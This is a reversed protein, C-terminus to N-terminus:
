SHALIEETGADMIASLYSFQGDKRKLYTIDTLLVSRIGHDKFERNLINKAYFIKEFDARDNDERQERLPAAKLWEYYGSRSVGAIECLDKVNLRNDSRSTM